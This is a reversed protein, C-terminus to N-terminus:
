LTHEVRRMIIQAFLVTRRRESPLTLWLAPSPQGTESM